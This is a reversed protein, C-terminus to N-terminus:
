QAPTPTGFRVREVAFGRARLLEALGRPGVTHLMGVAAFFSSGGEHLQALQDAMAPNRGDGIAALWQRQAPSGECGGCWQPYRLLDEEDGESWIAALRRLLARSAALDLAKLVGELQNGEGATPFKGLAALQDQVSELAVVRKGARRAIATLLRDIGFEGYLGERRADLLTVFTIQLMLPLQKLAAAPACLKLLEAAIREQVAPDIPPAVRQTGEPPLAAKLAATDNVDIEVALVDSAALARAVQPGPVLWDVRGVHITGYLWSTRGDKEVRWLPGRDRAQAKLQAIRAADVRPLPPPCDTAPQARAPAALLGLVLALLGSALLPLPRM